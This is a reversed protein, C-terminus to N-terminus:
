NRYLWVEWHAKLFRSESEWDRWWSIEYGDDGPCYNM